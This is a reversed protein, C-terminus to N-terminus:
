MDRLPKPLSSTYSGSRRLSLVLLPHTTLMVGSGCRVGPSLVGTGVASSASRVTNGASFIFMTKGM